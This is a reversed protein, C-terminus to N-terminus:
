EPHKIEILDYVSKGTKERYAKDIYNFIVRSFVDQSKRSLHSWEPIELETSLEPYDM